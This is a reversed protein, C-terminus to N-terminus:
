SLGLKVIKSKCLQAALVNKAEKTELCICDSWFLEMHLIFCRFIDLTDLVYFFGNVNWKM